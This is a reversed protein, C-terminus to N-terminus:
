EGVFRGDPSLIFSETVPLLARIGCDDVSAIVRVDANPNGDWVFEVELQYRTGDRAVVESTDARGESARVALEAYPRSRYRALCESLISHAESKNMHWAIALAFSVSSSSRALSLRM